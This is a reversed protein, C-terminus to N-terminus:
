FSLKSSLIGFSNDLIRRARSLSYNFIREVASLDKSGFPRAMNPKLPFAEDSEFMYPFNVSQTTMIPLYTWDRKM